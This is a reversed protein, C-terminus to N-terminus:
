PNLPDTQFHDVELGDTINDGDTDNNLPDTLSM